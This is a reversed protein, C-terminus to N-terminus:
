RALCQLLSKFGHKVVSKQILCGAPGALLLQWLLVGSVWGHPVGDGALFSNLTKVSKCEKEERGLM